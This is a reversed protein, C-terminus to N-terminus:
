ADGRARIAAADQRALRAVHAAERAKFHRGARAHSSSYEDERAARDDMIRAAQERGKAAGDRRAAEVLASVEAPLLCPGLYFWRAASAVSPTWQWDGWAWLADATWWQAAIVDGAINLWHVGDREPNAPYGPRAADIWGGPTGDTM